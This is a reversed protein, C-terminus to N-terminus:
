CTRAPATAPRDRWPSLSFSFPKSFILAGTKHTADSMLTNNGKGPQILYTSLPDTQGTVLGTKIGTTPAATNVGLEYWHKRRSCVMIWPLRSRIQRAVPIAGAGLANGALGALASLGVAAGIFSKKNM